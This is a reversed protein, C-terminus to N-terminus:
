LSPGEGNKRLPGEGNKKGGFKISPSLWSLGTSVLPVMEDGSAKFQSNLSSEPSFPVVEWGYRRGVGICVYRVAAWIM